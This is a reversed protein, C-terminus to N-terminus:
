FTKLLTEIRRTDAKFRQEMYRNGLRFAGDITSVGSGERLGCGDFAYSVASGDETLRQAPNGSPYFQYFYSTKSSHSAPNAV